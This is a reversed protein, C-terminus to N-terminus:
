AERQIEKFSLAIVNSSSRRAFLLLDWSGILGGWAEKNHIQPIGRNSGYCEKGTSHRIQHAWTM